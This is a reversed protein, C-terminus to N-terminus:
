NILVDALPRKPIHHVGEADRWYKVNGNAGVTELVVTEKPVGLAIVLLIEFREPIGVEARIQARKVSSLMCSGIGQECAALAITQAAIGEDVGFGDQKVLPDGLVIVYATPREGEVPGPWDNLYGAWALHPFIKANTAPDNSIWYKLPQLNGGSAVFRATDVLGVLTERSIAIEQRYRRVTRCSRALDALM